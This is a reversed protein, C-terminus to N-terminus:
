TTSPKNTYTPLGVATLNVKTIIIKPSALMRLNYTLSLNYRTCVNQNFIPIISFLHIISTCTSLNTPYPGSNKPCRPCSTCKCWPNKSPKTGNTKSLILHLHMMPRKLKLYVLSRLYHHGMPRLQHAIIPGLQHAVILGLQHAM